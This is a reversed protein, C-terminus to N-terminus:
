NFLLQSGLGAFNWVREEDCRSRIAMDPIGPDPVEAMVVGKGQGTRRDWGKEIDWGLESMSVWAFCGECGLYGGAQVSEVGGLIGWGVGGCWYCGVDGHVAVVERAGLEGAHWVGFVCMSSAACCESEIPIREEIKNPPYSLRQILAGLHRVCRGEIM